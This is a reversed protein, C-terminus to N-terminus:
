WIEFTITVRKIVDITSPASSASMQDTAESGNESSITSEASNNDDAITVIKGVRKGVAKAVQNAQERANKVAQKRAEQSTKDEDKGTFMVNSVTTAGEQYLTKILEGTKAVDTMTIRFAHVVQFSRVASLRNDVMQQGAVPTVTYFSKQIETGQGGISKASEMLTNLGADGENIARIVDTSNNVRIAILSVKEPEVSVKGEGTISIASTPFIKKSLTSLLTLLVLAAAAGIIIKGVIGLNSWRELLTIPTKITPQAAPAQQYTQYPYQNPQVSQNPAIPM